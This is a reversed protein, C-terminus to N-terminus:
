SHAKYFSLQANPSYAYYVWHIGSIGNAKDLASAVVFHWLQGKLLHFVCAPGWCQRPQQGGPVPGTHCLGAAAGLPLLCSATPGPHHEVGPQNITSFCPVASHTRAEPLATSHGWQTSCASLAALCAWNPLSTCKKVEIGNHFSQGGRESFKSTM